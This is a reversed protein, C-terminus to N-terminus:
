CATTRFLRRSICLATSELFCVHVPLPLVRIFDRSLWPRDICGSRNLTLKIGGLPAQRFKAPLCDALEALPEILRRDLTEWLRPFTLGAIPYSPASSGDDRESQRVSDSTLGDIFDEVADARANLDHRRFTDAQRQLQEVSLPETLPEIVEIRAIDDSAAVGDTARDAPPMSGLLKSSLRQRQEPSKTLEIASRLAAAQDAVADTQEFVDAMVEYTMASDAADEVALRLGALAVDPRNDSLDLEALRRRYDAREVSTKAANIARTLVLRASLLNGSALELSALRDLAATNSPDDDLIGRLIAMASEADSLHNACITALRFSVSRRLTEDLSVTTLQRYMSAADEWREDDTYLDALTQIVKVSTQGHAHVIRELVEIADRPSKLRDQFISAAELAVEEAEALTTCPITQIVDAWTSWAGRRECIMRVKGIVDIQGPQANLAACYADLAQTDQKLALFTKGAEGYLMARNQANQAIRAEREFLTASREIDGDELASIRLYRIPILREGAMKLVAEFCQKAEPGRGALRLARGAEMLFEARESDDLRGRMLPGLIEALLELDGTEDVWRAFWEIAAPTDPAVKLCRRMVQAAEYFDGSRELVRGKKLLLECQIRPDRIHKLMRDYVGILAEPSRAALGIRELIFLHHLSAGEM